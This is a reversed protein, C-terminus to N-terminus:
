CITNKNKVIGCWNNNEVDWQGSADTFYITRCTSTSCCPYGLPEAWCSSTTTAIGCWNNNEIGWSGDSDTMVVGVSGKCCPYGLRTSWCTTSTAGGQTTTTTKKTTTTTPTSSPPSLKHGQWASIWSSHENNFRNKSRVMTDTNTKGRLFKDVFKTVATNQSDAASCHMHNGAFDFGIRDEIGMAKYVEIAAMMSVYGSQDGLWTYDPNGLAIVARPAIMAVLEHHDYPLRDSKGNFNNKLAQMFWSYNTNSIKEVEGITDSVRWSNIGGGGSEQAITLAIREDMAGAFLAMKGAYSCGTVGIHAMDAKLQSKVQDLGDIIRSIGWSWATYDGASRLNSYMQYFPANTNKQGNMSYTAVQDHNFPIQIFGSFLNGGLSGTASNMGIIVPFPGSGSPVNVNSTLTVSKGNESITVTLKNGSFTAKVNAPPNPKQGLEYNEIEAKIENRRCEWDEFKSIRGSGNSWAFPDPLKSVSPLSGPSPLNPKQCSAGTNEVSYVLPIDASLSLKVLSALILGLSKNFRM